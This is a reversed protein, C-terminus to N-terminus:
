MRMLTWLVKGVIHADQALKWAATSFDLMALPWSNRDHVAYRMQTGVLTLRPREM